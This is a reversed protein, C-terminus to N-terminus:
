EVSFCIRVGIFNGRYNPDIGDRAAARLDHPRYNWSGGRLLRITGTPSHLDQCWQSVNGHMDHLGFANAPFSGVPTTKNRYVGPKGNGYTTGGNFNAQDTSITHGFHFPTTTGARCAYEWEIETPLRYVKGDIERLRKVFVQCDDWSVMEVPLKKDGKFQSPNVGMVAQWEEQTVTYIGMFFGKSVTVTRLKEGNAHGIEDNPSGMVFTAPPIWAFKMGIRNVFYKSAQDLLPRRDPAAMVACESALSVLISALFCQGFQKM